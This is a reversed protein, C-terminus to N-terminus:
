RIKFALKKKWIKWWEFVSKEIMLNCISKPGLFKYDGFNKVHEIIFKLEM